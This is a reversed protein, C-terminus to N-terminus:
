LPLQTSTLETGFGSGSSRAWDDETLDDFGIGRITRMRDRNKAELAVENSNTILLRDQARDTLGVFSSVETYTLYARKSRFKVQYPVLAGTRARFIGDIGKSDNPLNMEQRIAPPVQGM